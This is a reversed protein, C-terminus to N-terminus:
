HEKGVLDNHRKSGVPIAFSMYISWTIGSTKLLDGTYISNGDKWTGKTNGSSDAESEGYYRLNWTNNNGNYLQYGVSGGLNFLPAIAFEVGLNGTVGFSWNSIYVDNYNEPYDKEYDTFLMINKAGVAIEPAIAIRRIYIKKTLSMEFGFGMSSNINYPLKDYYLTGSARGILFEGGMGLWWQSLGANRLLNFNMRLKPGYMNSLNFDHIDFMYKNKLSDIENQTLTTDKNISHIRNVENNFANQGKKDLSFPVQSFGLKIDFPFHPIERVVSGIYPKGSIIQAKSQTSDLGKAKEGVKKIMIWGRKKQTIKGNTDEISEYAWFKDDTKIGEGNGISLVVNRPNRDLVQASLQFDPINKTAMQVDLAISSLAKRFAVYKYDAYEESLDVSGSYTREIHAILKATPNEGSNDIKWWYGGASLYIRYITSTQIYINGYQDRKETRVRFTTDSFGLFVPAFIYASNMVENLETETIGLEKAKDTIFSNKQQESLLAAARIEKKADVARLIAPVITANMREEIPMYSMEEFKKVFRKPIHNYDFRAFRVSDQLASVLANTWLEPLHENSQNIITNLFAVSKRQYVGAEKTSISEVQAFIATFLLFCLLLVFLKNM